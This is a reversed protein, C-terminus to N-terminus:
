SHGIKRPVADKDLFEYLYNWMIQHTIKKDQLIKLGANFDKNLTKVNPVKKSFVIYFRTKALPTGIPRLAHRYEEPLENNVIYQANLRDILILDVQRNYLQELNAKDDIVPKKILEKNNDFAPVNTYGAVVGFRYAKMKNFFDKQNNSEPVTIPTDDIKEYLVLPDVMFPDSYIFYKLNDTSEYEPFLGDIKGEITLQRAEDWPMVKIIVKYGMVEFAQKVVDYAYGRHPSDKGMIYPPWVSTGLTVTKSDAYASLSAVLALVGVLFARYKSM